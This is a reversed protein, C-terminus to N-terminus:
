ENLGQLHDVNHQGGPGGPQHCVFAPCQGRGEGQSSTTWNPLYSEYVPFARLNCALCSCPDQVPIRSQTPPPGRRGGSGKGKEPKLHFETLHWFTKGCVIPLITQCSLSGPGHETPLLHSCPQARPSLAPPPLEQPKNTGQSEDGSTDRSRWSEGPGGARPREWNCTDLAWSREQKHDM